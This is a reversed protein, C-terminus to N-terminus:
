CCDVPRVMARMSGCRRCCGGARQSLRAEAAVRHEGICARLGAEDLGCIDIRRLCEGAEVAGSPAIELSWDGRASVALRLRLADHHDLVAQLAGILDHQRMGAPVRLLMAQHFREIPGGRQRLWHMIPTPEMAGTAIDLATTQAAAVTASSALAVVTQHQFVARPTILLGAQRARSVLQISVISDGGLAFFNDDIGVRGVGLVEAFLACLVEEQPTRPDCLVEPTLDPAPLAKRDLKGNPTLPLQDLVVFASPVMYDPLSSQLAERLQSSLRRRLLAALPDSFYARWLGQPVSQAVSISRPSAAATTNPIQARDVFLVDFHGEGSGSTWSIKTEFGYREGLAWFTEPDEGDVDSIEILQHLEGVDRPEEANKLIRTTALDRSLRRNPVNGIRLSARQGAALHSSIEALSGNCKGWEIAQEPESTALAGVHLVADYRYRTLENDSRGRKLLIDVSGIRPLHQQLAAFFDPDITLENDRESAGVIRSKLQRINVGAPAQSLQTSTHFVPLLGFHRIDGVFVSGPQSVLEVANELVKLLYNFDPFYQVVSNLIVTDVSGPEMRSFDAAERQALEVHRMGSQAKTWCQLEAIASASIDTGRYAQCIPALHQLLLGVGCGIELVRNPKLATIREITCALWERMEDETLPENTYSSKWGVFTPGRETQVVGYTEDLVAQWEGVRRPKYGLM